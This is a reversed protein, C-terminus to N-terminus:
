CTNCSKQTCFLRGRSDSAYLELGSMRHQEHPDQAVWSALLDIPFHNPWDVTRCSDRQALRNRWQMQQMQLHELHGRVHWLLSLHRSTMQSFCFLHLLILRPIGLYSESAFFWFLWHYVFTCYSSLWESPIRIFTSLINKHMCHVTLVDTLISGHERASQLPVLLFGVFICQCPM